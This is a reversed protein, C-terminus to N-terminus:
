VVTVCVCEICQLMKVTIWLFSMPKRRGRKKRGSSDFMQFSLVTSSFAPLSTNCQNLSRNLLLCQFHHQCTQIRLASRTIKASPCFKTILRFLKALWDPEKCCLMYVSNWHSFPRRLITNGKEVIGIPCWTCWCTWYVYVSWFCFIHCGM